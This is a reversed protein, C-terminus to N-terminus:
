SGARLATLEAALDEAPYDILAIGNKRCEGAFTFRDIEALEAAAGASIKHSRFLLLAAYLKIDRALEEPTEDLLYRDPVELTIVM